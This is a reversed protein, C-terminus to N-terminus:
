GRKFNDIDHTEVWSVLVSYWMFATGNDDFFREAHYDLKTTSDDIGEESLHQLFKNLEISLQTGTKESIVATQIM